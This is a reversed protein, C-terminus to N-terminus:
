SASPILGNSACAVSWAGAVALYSRQRLAALSQGLAIDFSAVLITVTVGFVAAAAVGGSAGILSSETLLQRMLQTRGAGLAVRIGMERRREASRALLLRGINLCPILM